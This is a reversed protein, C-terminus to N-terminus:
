EMAKMVVAGLKFAVLLVVVAVRLLPGMRWPIAGSDGGKSGCCERGPTHHGRDLHVDVLKNVVIDLL